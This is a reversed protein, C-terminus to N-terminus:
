RCGHLLLRVFCITVELPVGRMRTEVEPWQLRMWGYVACTDAEVIARESKALRVVPEPEPDAAVSIVISKQGLESSPLRAVPVKASRRTIRSRSGSWVSSNLCNESLVLKLFHNPSV